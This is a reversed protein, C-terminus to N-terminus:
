AVPLPSMARSGDSEVSGKGGREGGAGLARGGGRGCCGHVVFRTGSTDVRPGTFFFVLTGRISGGTGIDLGRM